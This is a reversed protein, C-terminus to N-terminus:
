GGSNEPNRCIQASLWSLEVPLAFPDTMPEDPV